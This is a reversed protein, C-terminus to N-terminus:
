RTDVPSSIAEHIVGASAKSGLPAEGVLDFRTYAGEGARETIASIANELTPAHVTFRHVHGNPKQLGGYADIVFVKM